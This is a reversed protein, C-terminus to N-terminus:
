FDEASLALLACDAWLYHDNHEWDGGNWTEGRGSYVPIIWPFSLYQHYNAVRRYFEDRKGGDIEEGSAFDGEDYGVGM